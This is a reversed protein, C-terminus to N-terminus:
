IKDRLQIFRIQAWAFYLQDVEDNDKKFSCKLLVGFEDVRLIVGTYVINSNLFIEVERNILLPDNSM